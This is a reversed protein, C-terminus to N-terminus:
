PFVWAEPAFRLRAPRRESRCNSAWEGRARRKLVYACGAVDEIGIGQSEFLTIAEETPRGGVRGGVVQCLEVAQHWRFLGREAASILEGCEIKAQDLDDVVVLASRQITADDVERRGPSNAGAANVHTGPELLSGDFVPERANTIAIVIQSGRVAEDASAVAVTKVKLREQTEAAFRDRNEATRSFVKILSLPRALAVADIQTVAQRGTGVMGAVSADKRAMFKTAVGSAAGTRIWALAGPEIVAELRGTETSYLLTVSSHRIGYAQSGLVSGGMYTAGARGFRIRTRSINEVLGNAEQTFLDEMVAMCEDMPLLKRVDDNSLFIAM